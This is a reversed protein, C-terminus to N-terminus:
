PLISQLPVDWLWGAVAMGGVSMAAAMVFNVGNNDLIARGAEVRRSSSGGEKLRQPDTM